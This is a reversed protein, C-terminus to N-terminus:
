GANVGMSALLPGFLDRARQRVTEEPLTNLSAPLIMLRLGPRGMDAALTHALSEFHETAAVVTAIGRTLGNLGDIVSWSTCSGCNALGSILVDVGGVFADYEAQKRDGEPGKLGQARRWTTVTAGQGEFLPTWEEVTWDWAPWLVDVRIGLRKGALPGADPGSDPDGAGGLATPDLVKLRRPLLGAAEVARGGERPDDLQVRTLGCRKDALRDTILTRLHDSPLVCDACDVDDLVLAIRVEKASQDLGALELRAGDGAILDSLEDLVDIVAAQVSAESQTEATVSVVEMVGVM